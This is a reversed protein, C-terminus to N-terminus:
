ISGFQTAEAAAAAVAAPQPPQQPPLHVPAWTNHDWIEFNMDRNTISGGRTGQRTRNVKLVGQEVNKLFKRESWVFFLTCVRNDNAVIPQGGHDTRFGLTGVPLKRHYPRQCLDELQLVIRDLGNDERGQYMFVPMMKLDYEGSHTVDPM